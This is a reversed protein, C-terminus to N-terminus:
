RIRVEVMGDLTTVQEVYWKSGFQALAQNAVKPVVNAALGRPSMSEVTLTLLGNSAGLRGTLDLNQLQLMGYGLRDATVRIKGNAFDVKLNQASIGQEAAKGGVIAEAIDEETIIVLHKDVTPSPIPTRTATAAARRTATPRPTATRTPARTPAALAAPASTRTPLL